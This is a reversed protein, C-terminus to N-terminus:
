DRREESARTQGAGRVRRISRAPVGVVTEGAGVNKTVVSGAGTRAGDGVTVPAVLMTDSGIFAGAGIETRHKGVGDYNCTITGAGINAGAGIRADGLYSVHGSKAGTEITTNKMEVFNGVHVGAELVSGGRLHAYPGVDSGAGVRSDRVTSAVVKAGDALTARELIAYPGVVCGEGVVTGSRLISGPHVTTDAGITVDTDIQVTEPAMITVGALMHATRIRARLAAEAAALQVRDNVGLAIEADGPATTVPWGGDAGAGERVAIEVLDTLYWEGSVPSPPLAALRERAWAADLAMMGSNIEVVGQRLAPDDDAKEVIRVPRGEGDRAIRGYGAADALLCTLVAVRSRQSRATAVLREVVDATLLPHDAYLVVVWAADGTADLALRVADGTGRPPDQLVVAVDDRGLAAVVGATAPSAVVVTRAPRAGAGARLVHEIMPLGAVPHLPKALRSKMRTGAGAALVVLAVDAVPAGVM